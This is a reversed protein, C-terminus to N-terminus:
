EAGEIAAIVEHLWRIPESKNGVDAIFEQGRGVARLEGDERWRRQHYTLRAERFWPPILWHSAPADPKTLRLSEHAKKARGGHGIYITNNSHWKGNGEWKEITHPHQRPTCGAEHGRPQSGVPQVKEVKLYGFIRHHTDRRGEYAFLGFFLFVDGEAVKQKALHSQAKGTQGFACKSEWFMPDEHCPTEAAWRSNAKSVIEGLGLKGYTSVSPYNGSPIPLSIPVGDIIPSPQGGSKSDFGKRSLVIKL